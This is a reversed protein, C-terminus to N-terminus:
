SRGDRRWSFSVGELVRDGEFSKSVDDVVIEPSATLLADGTPRKTRAM